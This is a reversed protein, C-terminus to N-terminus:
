ITNFIVSRTDSSVVSISRSTRGNNRDDNGIIQQFNRWANVFMGVLAFRFGESMTCYLVFHIPYSVQVLLNLIIEITHSNESIPNEGRTLNTAVMVYFAAIPMEVICVSNVILIVLWTTIRSDRPENEGSGFTSRRRITRRRKEAVRIRVLMITSFVIMALCPVINVAVARVWSYAVVYVGHVFDSPTRFCTTVDKSPDLLSPVKTKIFKYEFFRSLHCGTALIFIFIVFFYTRKIGCWLRVNLPYSVCIYRQVALLTTLWISATHTITPLYITMYEWVYCVEFPIFEQYNRMTYVYIYTPTPLVITLTDVIAMCRLVFHTPSNMKLKAFVTVFLVNTILVIVCLAPTVYGYIPLSIDTNHFEQFNLGFPIALNKEKDKTSLSDNEQSKIYNQLWDLDSDSLGEMM